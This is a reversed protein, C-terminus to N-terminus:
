SGQRDTSDDLETKEAVSSSEVETSKSSEASAAVSGGEAEGSATDMEADSEPLLRLHDPSYDAGLPVEDVVLDADAADEDEDKFADRPEKDDDQLADVIEDASTMLGLERDSTDSKNMRSYSSNAYVVSANIFAMVPVTFLAGLIGIMYSAATLGLLVAVPHLSVASAMLIPNLVNGELQQVVLVIILMFLASGASVDVLAVLVAVVGAIIAGVIPIFAMLFTLLGIPAWLGIGLFYAGAGIGIADIAAVLVQVRAWAGLTTWGQSVSEHVTRRSARPMIRVIWLWITKGDYLFFFICFLVIFSTTLFSGFSAVATFAGNAIDSVNDRLTNMLNTTSQSIWMDLQNERLNLPGESLWTRLQEFAAAIKYALSPADAIVQNIALGVITVFITIGVLMAIVVSLVKPFHLRVSLLHVLPNLVATFVMAVAVPILIMSFQSMVWLVGLGAVAILIISWSWEAAARVGLPVYSKASRNAGGSEDVPEMPSFAAEEVLNGARSDRIIKKFRNLLNKRPKQM